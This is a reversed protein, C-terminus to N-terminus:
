SYNASGGPQSALVRDIMSRHAQVSTLGWRQILLAMAIDRGRTRRETRALLGRGKVVYRDDAAAEAVISDVPELEIRPLKERQDLRLSFLWTRLIDRYDRVGRFAENLLAASLFRDISGDAARLAVLDRFFGERAAISQAYARDRKGDFLEEPIQEWAFYVEAIV